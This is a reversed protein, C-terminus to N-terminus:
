VGLINPNLGKRRMLIAIQDRVSVALDREQVISGGVHININMGGMSGMKSLPIVAEPGAEGILGIEPRRIIGGMAHAPIGATSTLSSGQHYGKGAPAKKGGPKFTLAAVGFFAAIAAMAPLAALLSAGGTAAAEAEATVASVATTAAMATQITKLAASMATAAALAKNTVWVAAMAAAFSEVIGINDKFIKAVDRIAGGLNHATDYAEDGKKTVGSLGDSFSKLNPVIHKSTYDIFDTLTPMLSMGVTTAMDETTAKLHDMKGAFTESAKTAQGSVAKGLGTMIDTGSQSVSNVKKQANLVADHAKALAAESVTSTVVTTNHKDRADKLRSVANQLAFTQALTHESHSNYIALKQNYSTQAKDVSQVSGLHRVNHNHSKALLDNYKQQAAALKDQANKLKLAGGAAVPLDIGLAKLPRLQGNHAKAVLLAADSLSINKYKALDSAISLDKLAKAPDKLSTTLVALAEETQANTYGFEEQQTSAAAIQKSYEKYDAGANKLATELKAHSKEFKDAAEIAVYGVGAVLAATGLLATKAAKHIQHFSAESSKATKNMEKRAEGMKAQFEGINAKLEVFVPPLMSM